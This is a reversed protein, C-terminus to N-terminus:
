DYRKGKAHGVLEIFEKVANAHDPHAKDMYPSNADAIIANVKSKAESPTMSNGRNISADAIVDEGFNKAMENFLQLLQPSSNLEANDKIYDVMEQGGFKNLLADRQNITNMLDNGFMEKAQAVMADIKAKNANENSSHGTLSREQVYNWLSEAQTKSLGNSHAQEGFGKQYERFTDSNWEDPAGEPLVLSYGETTSPRGLKDYVLNWAETDGEKPMPLKESSIM